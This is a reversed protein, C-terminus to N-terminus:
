LNVLPFAPRPLVGQEHLLPHRTDLEVRRLEARIQQRACLQRQNVWM